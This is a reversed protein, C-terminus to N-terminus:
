ENEVIDFKVLKELTPEDTGSIIATAQEEEIDIEIACDGFNKITKDFIPHDDFFREATRKGIAGFYSIIEYYSSWDAREFDNEDRASPLM